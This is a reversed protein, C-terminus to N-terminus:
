GMRMTEKYAEIAKNKATVLFKFGIDSKELTMMSEHIEGERGSSFRNVVNNAAAVPTQFAESLRSAVNAFPSPGDAQDMGPAQGAGQAEGKKAFSPIAQSLWQNLVEAQM